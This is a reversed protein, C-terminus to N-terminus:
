IGEEVRGVLVLRGEGRRKRGMERGLSSFNAEVEKEKFRRGGQRGVDIERRRKAKKEDGEKEKKKFGNKRETAGIKRRRKATKEDRQKRISSGAMRNEDDDKNIGARAGAEQGLEQKWDRSKSGVKVGAWGLEISTAVDVHRAVSLEAPRRFCTLVREVIQGISALLM